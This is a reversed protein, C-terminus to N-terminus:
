SDGVRVPRLERISRIEDESSGFPAGFNSVRASLGELRLAQSILLRGCKAPKVRGGIRM